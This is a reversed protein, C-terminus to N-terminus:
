KAIQQMRLSLLVWVFKHREEPPPEQPRKRYSRVVVDDRVLHNFTPVGDRAVCLPSAKTCSVLVLLINGCCWTLEMQDCLRLFEANVALLYINDM